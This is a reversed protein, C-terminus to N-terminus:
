FGLNGGTTIKGLPQLGGNANGTDLNLPQLGGNNLHNSQGGQQHVHRLGNVQQEQSRVSGLEIQAGLARNTATACITDLDNALAQLPALGPALCLSHAADNYLTGNFPHKGRGNIEVVVKGIGTLGMNAAIYLVNGQNATPNLQSYVIRSFSRKLDELVNSGEFRVDQKIGRVSHLTIAVSGDTTANHAEIYIEGILRNSMWAPITAIAQKAIVSENYASDWGQSNQVMSLETQFLSDKMRTVQIRSDRKTLTADLTRLEKWSLAREQNFSTRFRLERLFVSATNALESVAPSAAANLMADEPRGSPDILEDRYSTLTKSLFCSAVNNDRSSRKNGSTLLMSSVSTRSGAGSMVQSAMVAITDAPRAAVMMNDITTEGNVTGTIPTLLQTINSVTWNDREGHHERNLDSVGNIFLLMEDDINEQGGDMSLGFQDTYGTIVEYSSMMQSDTVEVIIQVAFRSVDYSGGISALKTAKSDPVLISNALPALAQMSLNTGQATQEILAEQLHRNDDFNTFNASWSQVFMPKAPTMESLKIQHIRIGTGNM